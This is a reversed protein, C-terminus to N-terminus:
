TLLTLSEPEPLRRILGGDGRFLELEWVYGDIVHLLVLIPMGDDDTGEAEVPVRREVMAAPVAERDVVFIVTPDGEPYEESVKSHDLQLWLAEAAPFPLSVLTELMRREWNNLNRPPILCVNM